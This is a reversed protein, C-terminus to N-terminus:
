FPQLWHLPQPLPKPTFLTQTTSSDCIHHHPTDRHSHRRSHRDPSTYQSSSCHHSPSCSAQRQYNSTNRYQQPWHYSGSRDFHNGQSCRHHFSHSRDRCNHNHHFNSHARDHHHLAGLPAIKESCDQTFHGFDKCNYCWADHSHCFIHGKKGCVFCTMVQFWTLHLCHCPLQLRSDWTSNRWLISPRWYLRHTRKMCREQFITHIGCIRSLFAYPLLTATSPVDRLKWKSIICMPQWQRM